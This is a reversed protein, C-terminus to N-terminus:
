VPSTPATSAPWGYADIFGGTVAGDKATMKLTLTKGEVNSTLEISFFADSSEVAVTDAVTVFGNSPQGEEAAGQLDLAGRWRHHEPPHRQDLRCPGETIYNQHLCTVDIDMHGTLKGSEFVLQSDVVEVEFTKTQRNRHSIFEPTSIKGDVIDFTIAHEHSQNQGGWWNRHWHIRFSCDRDARARMQGKIMTSRRAKTPTAGPAPSPATRCRRTSRGSATSAARCANFFGALKGDTCTVQHADAPEAQHFHPPVTAWSQNFVGDRSATSLIFDTGNRQAGTLTLDFRANALDTAPARKPWVDPKRVDLAVVLREGSRFYVPRRRQKRELLLQDAARGLRLLDSGQPGDQRAPGPHRQHLVDPRGARDARASRCSSSTPRNRFVKGTAVEVCALGKRNRETLDTLGKAKPDRSFPLWAHDGIVPATAAAASLRWRPEM